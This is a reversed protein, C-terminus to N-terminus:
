SFLPIVSGLRRSLAPSVAWRCMWSKLPSLYPRGATFSRGGRAGWKFFLVGLLSLSPSVVSFLGLFWRGNVEYGLCAGWAACVGNDLFSATLSFAATVRWLAPMGDAPIRSRSFRSLTGVGSFSLSRRSSLFRRLLFLAFRTFICDSVRSLSFLLVSLSRRRRRGRRLVFVAFRRTAGDRLRRRSLCRRVASLRGAIMRLRLRLVRRWGGYASRSRASRPRCVSGPVLGAPLCAPKGM